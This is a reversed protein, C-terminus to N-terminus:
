TGLCSPQRSHKLERQQTIHPQCSAAIDDYNLFLWVDIIISACRVTQDEPALRNIVTGIMGCADYQCYSIFSVFQGVTTANFHRSNSWRKLTFSVVYFPSECRSIRIRSLVIPTTHVTWVYPTGNRDMLDQAEDCPLEVEELRGLKASLFLM